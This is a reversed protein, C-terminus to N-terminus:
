SPDYVNTLLDTEDPPPAEKADSVISDIVSAVDKDIDDLISMDLNM